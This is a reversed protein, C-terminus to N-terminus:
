LMKKKAEINLSERQSGRSLRNGWTTKIPLDSKHRNCAIHDFGAKKLQPIWLHEQVELLPLQMKERLMQEQFTHLNIWLTLRGNPKIWQALYGFFNKEELVLGQLLSSWPFLITLWHAFHHLAPSLAFADSQLFLVNEAGGRKPNRYCKRSIPKLNDIAADVGLCFWDPNERAFRYIFRGDGTGLDLLTKDYAKIHSLFRQEPWPKPQGNEIIPLAEPTTRKLSM